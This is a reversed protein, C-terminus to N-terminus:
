LSILGEVGAVKKYYAIIAEASDLRLSISVSTFKGNKSLKNIVVADTDDFASEIEKVGTGATPVIFKYLYTTPFTSTEVLREKLKDYFEKEKDTDM